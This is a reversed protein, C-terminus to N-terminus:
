TECILRNGFPSHIMKVRKQYKSRRKDNNELQEYGNSITVFM